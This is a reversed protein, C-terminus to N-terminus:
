NSAAAMIKPKPLDTGLAFFCTSCVRVPHFLQETPIPVNNDSCEACFIKGCNRCHHKRRGMWFQTNCGSCHDAAHDPVWLTPRGAEGDELAEWSTDSVGSEQGVSGGSGSGVSEPLSMQDETSHDHHHHHHHCRNHLMQNGLAQRTATLDRKVAELEAQHQLMIQHLRKTVEDSVNHLGDTTAYNNGRGEGGTGMRDENPTSPICSSPTRSHAPTSYHSVRSGPGVTAPGRSSNSTGVVSTSTVTSEQRWDAVNSTDDLLKKSQICINCSSTIGSSSISNLARKDESINEATIIQEKKKSLLKRNNNTTCIENEESGSFGNMFPCCKSSSLLSKPSDSGSKGNLLHTTENPKEKESYNTKDRDESAIVGLEAVLTDTSGEISPDSGVERLLRGGAVLDKLGNKSLRSLNSEILHESAEEGQDVFGNVYESVGNVVPLGNHVVRHDLCDETELHGNTVTPCDITQQGTDTLSDEGLLPPDSCLSTETECLTLSDSEDTRSTSNHQTQTDHINDSTEEEQHDELSQMQRLPIQNEEDVKTETGGESNLEAGLASNLMAMNPCSDRINPDSSRRQLHATHGSSALLDDCSKTKVLEGAAAAPEDEEEDGVSINPSTHPDETVDGMEPMYVSTWLRLDKMHCSSTLVQSTDQYLYNIYRHSNLRLLSWVSYTRDGIEATVREQSSNCIFSGFLNSYVHQALKVLFAQNFQFSTPYAYLLHHVCDLWQLFVPCRENIDECARGCGCRDSFKHGFEVWEREVLVQFGQITRYYPDMLLQSLATIQPTRDWGDSCHVLVPRGERDVAQVVVAAAKMLGSIHALWRTNELLSLWNPIDPSSAVLLRLAHHSKRITHINALNMFQIECQPYYEPCECGGGRARNAVATAYSRADVILVKKIETQAKAEPLDCLSPIDSAPTIADVDGNHQPPPVLVQERGCRSTDQPADYACAEAIAKVLDEDESSRWGLWGVEPQSCRAIVAGNPHRWVVAPVRRASRFRAVSELNNDNISAPVVIKRPYTSCLQYDQNALSIRWAGGLDFGLRRVEDEFLKETRDQYSQPGDPDLLAQHLELQSEMTWMYFAFAFVNELRAPLTLAKSLRRQWEACEENSGFTIKYSKTDKCSCTFSSFKEASLPSLSELLFMTHQRVNHLSFETIQSHYSDMQLADSMNRMNALLHFLHSQCILSM